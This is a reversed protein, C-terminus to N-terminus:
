SLLIIQAKLSLFMVIMISFSVISFFLLSGNLLFHWKNKKLVRNLKIDRLLFVCFSILSILGVIGLGAVWYYVMM